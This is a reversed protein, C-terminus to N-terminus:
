DLPRYCVGVMIDAKNVKGRIILWLFELRDDGGNLELCDFHWRVDLVVRGGGGEEGIGESSNM